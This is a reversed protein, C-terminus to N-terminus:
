IFIDANSFSYCDNLESKETVHEKPEGHLSFSSVKM